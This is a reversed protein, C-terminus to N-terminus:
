RRVPPPDREGIVLRPRTASPGSPDGARKRVGTQVLPGRRQPFIHVRQGHRAALPSREPSLDGRDRRGRGLYDVADCGDKVFEVPILNTFTGKSQELVLLRKRFGKQGFSKTGEILHVVGRVTPVKTANRGKNAATPSRCRKGAGWRALLAGCAATRSPPVIGGLVLGGPGHIAPAPSQLAQSHLRVRTHCAIVIPLM